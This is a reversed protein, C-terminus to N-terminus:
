EVFRVEGGDYEIWRDLLNGAEAQWLSWFPRHDFNIVEIGENDQAFVRVLTGHDEIHTIKLPRRPQKQTM